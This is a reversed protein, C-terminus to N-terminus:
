KNKSLLYAALVRAEEASLLKSQAPMKGSRGYSVTTEIDRVLGGYLWTSDALTPAGLMQNGEGGMGHCAACHMDFTAKGSQALADNTQQGSLSLVYQSVEKIQSAQLIQEYAPMVGQRGNLISHTIAAETNGYLWDSDTLNPFGRSGKADSGHCASCYNAFLRSGTTMANENGQMTALDMGDFQSFYAARDMKNAQMQEELQNLQTWKLSGEVNGLAPYLYMYIAAFITTLIFMNFWWKPLPHNLESIGDWVHGTSEVGDITPGSSETNKKSSTALLLWMVGILNGIVLVSIFITWGTSM